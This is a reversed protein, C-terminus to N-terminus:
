AKLSFDHLLTYRAGDSLLESQYLCYKSVNLRVHLNFAEPLPFLNHPQKKLRSQTIHPIQDKHLHDTFELHHDFYFDECAKNLLRVFGSYQPNEFFKGWIMVPKKYPYYTFKEFVIEFPKSKFLQNEVHQLLSSLLNEPFDGLFVLTVHLNEPAIWRISQNECAETFERCLASLEENLPIAFFIRLNKM